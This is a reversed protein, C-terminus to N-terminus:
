LITEICGCKGNYIDIDDICIEYKSVSEEIKASFSGSHFLEADIGIQLTEMIDKINAEMTAKDGTLTFTVPITITLTQNM